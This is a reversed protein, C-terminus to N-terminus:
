MILIDCVCVCWACTQCLPSIHCALITFESGVQEAEGDSREPTPTPTALDMTIDGEDQSTPKDWQTKRTISHYYYVKGSPDKAFKWHPPLDM